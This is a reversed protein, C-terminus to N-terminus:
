RYFLKTSDRQSHFLFENEVVHVPLRSPSAGGKTIRLTGTIDNARGTDLPKLALLVISKHFCSHTYRIMDIMDKKQYEGSDANTNEYGEVSSVLVVVSFMKMLPNIFNLHLEDSTINLLPILLEPQELILIRGSQKSLCNILETLVKEKPNGTYKLAFDTLFDLIRYQSSDIKLKNLSSTFYASEHIFSAIVLPRTCVAKRNAASTDSENLSFPIGYIYSETIANILWSPSTGLRHTVFLLHSLGETFLSKSLVSQDNFITLDQRQVNSM